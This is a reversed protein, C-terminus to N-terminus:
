LLKNKSPLAVFDKLYFPEFTLLDEFQEAQFKQWAIRGMSRASSLTQELIIANPHQGLTERCKAAGSGCFIVQGLDLNELFANKEIIKAEVAKLIEGGSDFLSCYVEMRRADILPIIEAKIELAMARVQDALGDLSGISILPIQLSMCLGKATSVGVRLGTYSGPGKSIAVASLDSPKLQLDSLLTEIMPTLLRAHRNQGPYELCGICDPGSFVAVSSVPTATELALIYPLKIINSKAKGM